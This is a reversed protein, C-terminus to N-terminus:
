ADSILSTEAHRLQYVQAGDEDFVLELYPADSVASEMVTAETFPARWRWMQEICEPCTVIQPVIVYEVGAERLLAEHAPDAPDNWFVRLREQEAESAETGSFFPQPRYFIADREAIVPVWDAEHPGPHNLIRANPPTNERLWDM